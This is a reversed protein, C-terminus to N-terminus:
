REYRCRIGIAKALELHKSHELFQLPITRFLFCEVNGVGAEEESALVGFVHEDLRSCSIAQIQTAGLTWQGFQHCRLTLQFCHWGFNIGLVYGMRSFM